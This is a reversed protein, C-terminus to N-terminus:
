PKFTTGTSRIYKSLVHALEDDTFRGKARLIARVKNEFENETISIAPVVPTPPVVPKPTRPKIKKTTLNFQNIEEIIKKFANGISLGGFATFTQTPNLSLDGWTKSKKATASVTNLDRLYATLDGYTADGERKGTKALAAVFKDYMDNVGQQSHAESRKATKSMFPTLARKIRSGVGYPSTGFPNTAEPIIKCGAVKHIYLQELDYNNM